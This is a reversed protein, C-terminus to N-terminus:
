LTTESPFRLAVNRGGVIRGLERLLEDSAKIKWEDGLRIPTDATGNTYHMKVPSAGSRHKSLLDKLDGVLGNGLMSQDVRLHLVSFKERLQPLTYINKASISVGADAYTLGRGSDGSM